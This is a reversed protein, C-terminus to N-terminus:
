GKLLGDLVATLADEHVRGLAAGRLTGDRDIIVTFPLALPGNGLARATEAFAQDAVLLPYSVPAALAFERVQAAEDIAIGVFQVGRAAYRKQVQSFVPMEDRCPTCWTAWYNVVLIRGRWQSLPQLRGETDPLAAGLLAQVAAAPVPPPPPFERVSASRWTVWALGLSAAFLAAALGLM